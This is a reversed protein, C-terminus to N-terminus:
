SYRGVVHCDPRPPTARNRRKDFAGNVWRSVSHESVSFATAAETISEFVRGRIHWIFTGRRNRGQVQATAWRVNGPEYGRRSDIRDLTTGDPRPGIHALFDAFSASWSHCVTVGRGGYRPYDKDGPAECRRKMATWSSYEVTGKGGHITHSESARERALCGCSATTGRRVRSRAIETETGCDCRWLSKIHGDSSRGVDRRVLTLRGYREITGKRIVCEDALAPLEDLITAM